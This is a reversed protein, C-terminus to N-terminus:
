PWKSFNRGRGLGLTVTTMAWSVPPSLMQTPVSATRTHLGSVQSSKVEVLEEWPRVGLIVTMARSVPPPPFMQTPLSATRTRLEVVQSSKVQGVLEEEWSGPSSVNPDFLESHSHTAESVQSSKVRPCLIARVGEASGM